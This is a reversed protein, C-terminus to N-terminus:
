PKPDSGSRKLPRQVPPPQLVQRQQQMAQQGQQQLMSLSQLMNLSNFPSGMSPYSPLSMQSQSMQQFMQAQVALQQLQQLQQKHMLETAKISANEQRLVELEKKLRDLESQLTQVQNQESDPPREGAKELMDKLARAESVNEILSQLNNAKSDDARMAEYLSDIRDLWGRLRGAFAGDARAGSEGGSAGRMKGVAQLLMTAFSPPCAFRHRAACALARVVQFFLLSDRLETGALHSAANDKVGELRQDVHELVRM